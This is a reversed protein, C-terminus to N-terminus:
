EASTLAARVAGLQSDVSLDLDGYQSELFAERPLGSPSDDILTGSKRKDVLTDISIGLLEREAYGLLHATAKNIRKISGSRSTVIVADNMSSLVSDLYDRSITTERLKDRMDNFVAALEGLEGHRVQLPEGFDSDRLKEAQRKLERIRKTQYRAVLWIAIGSALLILASGAEIWDFESTPVSRGAAVVVGPLLAAVATIAAKPFPRSHRTSQRSIM